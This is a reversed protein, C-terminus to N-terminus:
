SVANRAWSSYDRLSVRLLYQGKEERDLEGILRLRMDFNEDASKGVILAFKEPSENILRYGVIGNGQGDPDTAPEIPFLETPWATSEPVRRAFRTQSFSPPNDNVDRVIIGIRVIQFYDPPQVAVDISLVCVSKETGRCVLERDVPGVTSLVGDRESFTFSRLHPSSKNGLLLFRLLKVIEQPYKSTLNSDKKLDSIVVTGRPAEEELEYVISLRNNEESIELSKLALCESMLTILLLLLLLRGSSRFINEM